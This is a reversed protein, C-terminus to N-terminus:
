VRWGADASQDEALLSIRPSYHLVGRARGGGSVATASYHDRPGSAGPTSKLLGESM